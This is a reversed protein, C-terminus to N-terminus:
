FFDLETINRAIVIVNAGGRMALIAIIIINTEFTKFGGLMAIIIRDDSEPFQLLPHYIKSQCHELPFLSQTLTM